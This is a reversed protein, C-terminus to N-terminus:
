NNLFISGKEVIGSGNNYYLIYFYTATPLKDKGLQMSNMSTGDWWANYTGWEDYNGYKEKEYVLSGWRNYIEIKVSKVNM